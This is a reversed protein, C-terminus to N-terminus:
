SDSRRRKHSPLVATLVHKIRYLQPCGHTIPSPMHPSNRNLRRIRSRFPRVRQKRRHPNEWLTPHRGSQLLKTWLLLINKGLANEIQITHQRQEPYIRGSRQEHNSKTHPISSTSDGGQTLLFDPDLDKVTKVLTLLKEVEEGSDISVKKEGQTIVIKDIPDKFNAIKGKKAIEVKLKLVRLEPVAYDNSTVSDLLTYDLSSDGIRVDVYALPFIDHSFFYDRDGRLDCNHIGYRLYDGMKLITRTLSQTKRCDKLTLELVRSKENDTPQAYKYTFRWSAILQNNYLRSVLRELEDQATSVYIKSQFTDTLKANAM